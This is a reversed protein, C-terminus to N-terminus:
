FCLAVLDCMAVVTERDDTLPEVLATRCAYRPKLGAQILRAADVLLRTSPIESLGLSEANRLKGALAVLKRATARTAQTEGMLIEVEVAPEPYTFSLSVFRQRTSPKLEKLGRQYFPNFSAVIMFGPAAVLMEDRRELYLTRRHDTLPHVAVVVDPRAEAIEDLYLIAGQRVARTV